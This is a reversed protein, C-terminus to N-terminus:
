AAAQSFPDRAAELAGRVARHRPAFGESEPTEAPTPKPRRNYQRKPKPEDAKPAEVAAPADAAATEAILDAALGFMFLGAEVTIFLALPSWTALLGGTLGWGAGYAGNAVITGAVGVGLGARLMRRGAKHETKLRPAVRAAFVNALGLALLMGDIGIPMLRADVGYEGYKLGLSYVHGYSTVFNIGVVALISFCVTWLLYRDLKEFPKVALARKWRAYSDRM